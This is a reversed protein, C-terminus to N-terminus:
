YSGLITERERIKGEITFLFDRVENLMRANLEEKKGSIKEVLSNLIEAADKLSVDFEFLDSLAKEDVRSSDFVGAYGRSAFTITRSLTDLHRSLDDLEKLLTLEGSRSLETKLRDVTVRSSTLITSIHHRLGKDSERIAEKDHYSGIEPLIRASKTLIRGVNEKTGM